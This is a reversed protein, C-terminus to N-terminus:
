SEILIKIIEAIVKILQIISILMEMNARKLRTSKPCSQLSIM